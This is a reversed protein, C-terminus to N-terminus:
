LSKLQTAQYLADYNNVMTEISFRNVTKQAERALRSAKDRNNLLEHIAEALEKPEKVEVLLGDAGDTIIEQVGGSRTAIIPVGAAMAEITSISFGESISSLVFIDMEKLIKSINNRYGCFFVTTELGLKTRLNLISNYMDGSTDGVIVFKCEPHNRVVLAAAEILYEYGKAPRVNGISGIVTDKTSFGLSNRLSQGRSSASQCNVEIGNYITQLKQQDFRFLLRAYDKLHNSVFIIRYSGNNIIRLKTRLFRSAEPLDVFGHFTSIVPIGCIKGALSCYVNSGLLHSHILKIHKTKILRILQMLYRMDFSGRSPTLIPTINLYQLHDYLWGTGNLAVCPDFNRERMNKILQLFVTEAGGPGTTDISHLVPIM